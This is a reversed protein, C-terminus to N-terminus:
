TRVSTDALRRELDKRWKATYAVKAAVAAFTGQRPFDNEDSTKTQVDIKSM